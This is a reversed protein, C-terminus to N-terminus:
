KKTKKLRAGNPVPKATLEVIRNGVNVQAFRQGGKRMKLLQLALNKAASRVLTKREKRQSRIATVEDFRERPMGWQRKTGKKMANAMIVLPSSSAEPYSNGQEEYYYVAGSIAVKEDGKNYFAGGYPLRATLLTEGTEIQAALGKPCFPVYAVPQFKVKTLACEEIQGDPQVLCKAEELSISRKIVSAIECLVKPGIYWLPREAQPISDKSVMWDWAATTFPQYEEGAAGAKTSDALEKAEDVAQPRAQRATTKTQKAATATVKKVKKM